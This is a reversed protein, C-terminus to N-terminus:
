TASPPLLQRSSDPAAHNSSILPSTIEGSPFPVDSDSSSDAQPFAQADTPPPPSPPPLVPQEYLLPAPPLVLQDSPPPPITNDIPPPPPMENAAPFPPPLVQVDDNVPSNAPEAPPDLGVTELPPQASPLPSPPQNGTNSSVATQTSTMPLFSSQTAEAPGGGGKGGSTNQKESEETKGNETQVPAAKGFTGSPDCGELETEELLSFRKSLLQPLFTGLSIRKSLRHSYNGEDEVPPSLIQGDLFPSPGAWNSDAARKKQLRRKRIMIGVIALMMLVLAGGIIVAVITGAKTSDASKLAPNKPLVKTTTTKKEETTAAPKPESIKTPTTQIFSTTVAAGQSTRTPKPSTTHDRAPTTKEPEVPSVTTITKFTRATPALQTSATMPHTTIGNASPKTSLANTTEQSAQEPSTLDPTPTNNVAPTNAAPKLATDKPDQKKATSEASPTVGHKTGPSPQTTAVTAPFANPGPNTSLSSANEPPQQETETHSPSPSVPKITNTNPILSTEYSSKKESAGIVSGDSIPTQAQTAANGPTSHITTQLAQKERPGETTLPTQVAQEAEPDLSPSTQASASASPAPNLLTSNGNAKTVGPENEAKATLPNSLTTVSGECGALLVCLSTFAAAIYMYEMKNAAKFSTEM